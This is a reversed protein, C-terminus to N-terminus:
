EGLETTTRAPITTVVTRTVTFTTETYTL